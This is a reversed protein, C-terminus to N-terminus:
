RKFCQTTFKVLPAYGHLHIGGDLLGVASVDTSLGRLLLLGIISEPVVPCQLPLSRVSLTLMLYNLSPCMTMRVALSAAVLWYFVSVVIFEYMV